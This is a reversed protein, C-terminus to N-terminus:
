SLIRLLRSLDRCKRSKRPMLRGQSLRICGPKGSQSTKARPKVPWFSYRASNSLTEIPTRGWTGPGNCIWGRQISHICCLVWCETLSRQSRCIKISQWAEKSLSSFSIKITRRGKTSLARAIAARKAIERSSISSELFILSHILSKPKISFLLRRTTSFFLLSISSWALGVVTTGSIVWCGTCGGFMCLPCIRSRLRIVFRWRLQSSAAWSMVEDFRSSFPVAIHQAEGDKASVPLLCHLPSTKRKSM